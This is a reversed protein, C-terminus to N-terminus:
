SPKSLRFTSVRTSQRKVLLFSGTDPIDTPRLIRRIQEMNQLDPSLGGHVAFCRFFIFPSSPTLEVRRLILDLAEPFAAFFSSVASSGSM